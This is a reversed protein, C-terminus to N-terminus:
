SLYAENRAGPDVRKWVLPPAYRVWSRSRWLAEIEKKAATAESSLTTAGNPYHRLGSAEEIYVVTTGAPASASHTVLEVRVEFRLFLRSLVNQCLEVYAQTSAALDYFGNDDGLDIFLADPLARYYLVYGQRTPVDFM